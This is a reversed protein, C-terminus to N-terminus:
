KLMSALLASTGYVDEPEMQFPRKEPYPLEMAIESAEKKTIGFGSSSDVIANRLRKKKHNMILTMVSLTRDDIDFHRPVLYIMCSDVRPRPYFNGAGVNRVHHVRFQLASVVSLKSYDRTGAKALMHESFEKQVCILAPIGNRCLWYVVKSSLNYPINSVMIDIPNFQGVDMELFDGEILELRDSEISSKLAAVLRSDKEIAVVRKAKRCLEKTLIGLGPGLEIANLGNAYEAEATAINENILFNQGLRRNAGISKAITRYYGEM